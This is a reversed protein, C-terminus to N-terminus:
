SYAREKPRHLHWWRRPSQRQTFPTPQSEAFTNANRKTPTSTTPNEASRDPTDLDSQSLQSSHPPTSQHPTTPSTSYQVPSPASPSDFLTSDFRWFQPMGCGASCTWSLSPHDNHIDYLSSPLELCDIHYWKKCLDCQLCKQKVKKNWICAYNCIKCPFKPVYNSKKRPRPPGM